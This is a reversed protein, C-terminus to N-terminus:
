RKSAGAHTRGLVKAFRDDDDEINSTLGDIVAEEVHEQEEGDVERKDATLSPVNIGRRAAVFRLLNDRAEFIAQGLGGPLIYLVLLLGVGTVLQRVDPAAVQELLRFSFVGILAGAISGLGGIVSVSFVDISMSPQFSGAGAGQLVTIFLGGAFGAVVGSLVFGTLKSATTPVAAAGSARYNDRTSILVRGSRTRRVGRAAAISLVLFGLCLFYLVWESQLDFRGWLVPRTISGPIYDPFNVPNLFFTDLAVAFSLTTAALFLGSIRLAPLGILLAIFGGAFGAVLLMTFLDINWRSAVNGFAMAGCGVIAFQGLSINGGWGTLIVLSVSVMGWIAAVSMLNVTAPDLNLPIWIALIALIVGVAWRTYRVEPLMRLDRPVQRIVGTMSWTGAGELARSVRKRQAILGVLIVVLVAVDVSSAKKTNWFALQSIIELGVGAGFAIPLSEMRALVAAALAPLLLFAIGGFATSVAGAFPAKLIFILSALGGSVIWVITQLRRIPIGFLLAREANDAAARVAIGIDTRLLFWSLAILVPVVAVIILLHDGTFLIPAVEFSFTLPTRFGGVIGANGFAQPIFLQVGGLLQALGITAVTLVLRSTNAFRRIVLYDVLGGVALGTVIGAAMSLFYNIKADTFMMVMLIGGVGGMAAYAFNIITNSRYILVLGIALLGTATGFIVGLLVVGLPASGPWVLSTLAWTLLIAVIVAAVTAIRKTREDWGRAFRLRDIM